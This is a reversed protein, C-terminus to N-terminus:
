QLNINSTNCRQHYKYLEFHVWPGSPNLVRGSAQISLAVFLFVYDGVV